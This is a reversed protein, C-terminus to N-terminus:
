LQAAVGVYQDGLGPLLFVVPREKPASSTLAAGTDLTAIAETTDRCVVARREEFATRGVRLTHAVDALEEDPHSRLHEALRRSAADLSGPTRASLPLIQWPRSPGSSSWTEADAEELVVHVNTGAWGFSSVGAIRRGEVPTWTELQRPVRLRGDRW